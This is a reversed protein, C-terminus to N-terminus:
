VIHSVRRLLFTFKRHCDRCENAASDQEWRVNLQHPTPPLRGGNTQPADHTPVRFEPAQSLQPTLDPAMRSVRSALFESSTSASSSANAENYGPYHFEEDSDEEESVYDTLLLYFVTM